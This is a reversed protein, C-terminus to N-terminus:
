GNEAGGHDFLFMPILTYITPHRALPARSESVPSLVFSVWVCYGDTGGEAVELSRLILNTGANKLSNSFPEANAAQPRGFLCM